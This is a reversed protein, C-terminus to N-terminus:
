ASKKIYNVVDKIEFKESTDIVLVNHKNKKAEFLCARFIEAELNDALKSKSYKRKMLRRGLVEIDCLTVICLDVYKEPLYHSLHSDLILNENKVILEILFKNLKKTDVVYCKNTRDYEEHIKNKKILLNVDVYKFKLARALKKAITTKGSGVSGTVAIIM